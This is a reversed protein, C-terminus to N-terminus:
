QKPARWNNGVTRAGCLYRRLLKPIDDDDLVRNRPPRAIEDDIRCGSDTQDFLTM